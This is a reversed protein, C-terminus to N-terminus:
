DTAFNVWNKLSIPTSLPNHLYNDWYWIENNFSDMLIKIFFLLALLSFADYLMGAIHNYNKFQFFYQLIPKSIDPKSDSM